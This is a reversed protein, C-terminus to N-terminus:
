SLNEPSKKIFLLCEPSIPCERAKMIATPSDKVENKPIESMDARQEPNKSFERAPASYRVRTVTSHEPNTVPNIDLFIRADGRGAMSEDPIMQRIKATSAAITVPYESPANIFSIVKKRKDSTPINAALSRM